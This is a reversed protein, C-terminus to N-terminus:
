TQRISTFTGLLEELAGTGGDHQPVGAKVLQEVWRSALDLCNEANTGPPSDNTIHVGKVSCRWKKRVTEVFNRRAGTVRRVKMDMKQDMIYLDRGTSGGKATREREVWAAAWAHRSVQEREKKAKGVHSDDHTDFIMIWISCNGGKQARKPAGFDSHCARSDESEARAKKEAATTTYSIIAPHVYARRTGGSTRDAEDQRAALWDEM